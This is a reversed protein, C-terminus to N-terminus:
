FFFLVFCLFLTTLCVFQPFHWKFCDSVAQLALGILLARESYHVVPFLFAQWDCGPPCPQQVCRRGGESKSKKFHAIQFNTKHDNDAFLRSQTTVSNNKGINRRLKSIDETADVSVWQAAADFTWAFQAEEKNEQPLKLPRREAPTALKAVRDSSIKSGGAEIWGFCHSNNQRTKRTLSSSVRKM